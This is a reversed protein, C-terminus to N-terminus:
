RKPQSSFTVNGGWTWLGHQNPLTDAQKLAHMLDYGSAPSKLFEQYEGAAKDRFINAQQGSKILLEQEASTTARLLTTSAILLAVLLIRKKM